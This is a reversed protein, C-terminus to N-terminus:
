GYILKQCKKQLRRCASRTNDRDRRLAELLRHVHSLSLEIFQETNHTEKKKRMDDLIAEEFSALLNQRYGKHKAKIFTFHNLIDNLEGQLVMYRRNIEIILDHLESTKKLNVQLINVHKYRIKHLYRKNKQWIKAAKKLLKEVVVAAAVAEVLETLLKNKLDLKETALALDQHQKLNFMEIRHQLLEQLKRETNPFDAIKKKLVDIEFDILNLSKVLENHRLCIRFYQEKEIELASEDITGFFSDILQAPRKSNPFVSHIRKELARELDLLFGNLEEKEKALVGIREEWLQSLRHQRILEAIRNDLTEAKMNM